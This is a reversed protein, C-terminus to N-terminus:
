KIPGGYYGDLARQTVVDVKENTLKALDIDYIFALIASYIIVDPLESEIAAKIKVEDYGDRLIKIIKNGMEGNESGIAWGYYLAPNQGYAEKLGMKKISCLVEHSKLVSKFIDEQATGLEKELDKIRTELRYYLDSPDHDHELSEKINILEAIRARIDGKTKM